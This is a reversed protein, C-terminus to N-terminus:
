SRAYERNIIKAQRDTMTVVPVSDRIISGLESRLNDIQTSIDSTGAEVNGLIEQSLSSVSSGNSLSAGNTGDDIGMQVKADIVAADRVSKVAGEMAKVTEVGSSTIGNAMGLMLYEGMDYMVKSPSAIHFFSKLADLANSCVSSVASIVWDIAGSIGDALGAILNQGAGVMEGVFGGVAGVAGSVAGSVADWVAGAAGGVGSAVGYMLSLGQGLMDGFFGGVTSVADSIAGGVAGLLSGVVNGVANVLQMFLEFGVSLMSGIFGVIAALASGIASGIGAILPGVIQALAQVLAMFLQIGAQLMMPILTPMMNVVAAITQPIALILANMVQPLAQVLAMFLAVAAQLLLPILTPLMTYVQTALWTVGEMLAPLISPLVTLIAELLQLVGSMLAPILTPLAAAIGDVVQMLASVLSPLVSGLMGVVSNLVNAVVPLIADAMGPLAQALNTGITQVIPLVNDLVTQFSSILQQTLGSMDAKSNGLGTLWNSWSAKMMNVSGEVTSAAEKATTGTIGMKEQTVHIAQILQDFPIDKVNGATAQFSDGMVGSDNVLRAMESATGGYGLKLNDLMTYNDKAFGQYADQISSINTGMKNANDSMDVIATNAYEAAKATDGGLGQLLTASFSTAQEMYQNASIGATAYAGSAYAEVASASNGFLTEVGGTLQEYSAYSSLAASGIGVIAAGCVAAAGVLAGTLLRAASGAASGIGGTLKSDIGEVDFSGTAGNKLQTGINAGAGSANVGALGSSISSKLGSFKPVLTCYARAVEAGGAM